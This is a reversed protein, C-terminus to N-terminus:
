RYEVPAEARFHYTGPDTIYQQFLELSERVALGGIEPRRIEVVRQQGDADNTLLVRIVLGGDPFVVQRGSENHMEVRVTAVGNDSEPPDIAVLFRFRDGVPNSPPSAGATSPEGPKYTFTGGNDSPEVVREPPGSPPATTVTQVTRPPSTTPPAGAARVTTTTAAAPAATTTTTTSEVGTTTTTESAVTTSTSTTTSDNFQVGLVSPIDGMGEDDASVALLAVALVALIAGGALAGRRNTWM